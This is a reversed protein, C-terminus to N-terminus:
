PRACFDPLCAALDPSIRAFNEFTIDNFALNQKQRIIEFIEFYNLVIRKQWDLGLAAAAGKIDEERGEIELFVGFPMTDLMLLVRGMEFTHRKKQYCRVPFYGLFDLIQRMAAPNDLATEWEKMVKCQRDAKNETEAKVTLTARGDERLRLLANKKRISGAKDDWITNDEETQGLSKAGVSLIKAHLADPKAIWFKVEVELPPSQM